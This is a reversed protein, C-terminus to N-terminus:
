AIVIFVNRYNLRFITMCAAILVDSDAASQFFPYLSLSALSTSLCLECLQLHAKSQQPKSEFVSEQQSNERPVVPHSYM